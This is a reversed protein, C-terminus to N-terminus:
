KVETVRLCQCPLHAVTKESAVPLVVKDDVGFTAALHVESDDRLDQHRSDDLEFGDLLLFRWYSPFALHRRRLFFDYSLLEQFVSHQNIDRAVEAPLLHKHPSVYVLRM